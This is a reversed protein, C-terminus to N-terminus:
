IRAALPKEVSARRAQHLHQIKGGATHRPPEREIQLLGAARWHLAMLQTTSSGSGIAELFVEAVDNSKVPGIAPHVLLQVRPQGDVVEDEILQYDTPGGGFRAPLVEELVRILDGDFFTMGGATLKQFSRVKILHTTWGVQELPCGCPRNVIDAQDGICVNIYTFPVNSRLSSMLLAHSPLGSPTLTEGPQVLAYRDSLAHLDETVNRGLCGYGINGTEAAGYIPMAVGGVRRITTLRAATLPEGTNTFHAGTLDLGDEAAAQCVRVGWSTYAHFHPTGGNRLVHAMWRAIPLPDDPPAYEPSPFSTGSLRCGFRVLREFSRYRDPVESSDSDVPTLWRVPGTVAPLYALVTAEGSGPPYGIAHSWGRGGVLELRLGNARGRDRIFRLDLPVPMRTGSSGGTHNAVHVHAEPNRLSSPTVDITASGRAAPKRGRFEDFTLYVGQRYLQRLADELGEQQVLRELDGPECGALNFLKLYPNTPNSFVSRRVLRLFDADRRALRRRIGTRTEHPDIPRRLHGPLSWLMRLGAAVDDRSVSHAFSPIM